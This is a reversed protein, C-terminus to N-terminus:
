VQELSPYLDLIRTLSQHTHAGGDALIYLTSSGFGLNYVIPGRTNQSKKNNRFCAYEPQDLRWVLKQESDGADPLLNERGQHVLSSTSPKVHLKM